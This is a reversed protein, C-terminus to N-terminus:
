WGAQQLGHQWVPTQLDHLDSSRGGAQASVAALSQRSCAARSDLMVEAM